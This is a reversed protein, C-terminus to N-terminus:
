IIEFLNLKEFWFLLIAYIITSIFGLSYSLYINKPKDVNNNIFLYMLVGTFVLILLIILFFDRHLLIMFLLEIVFFSAILHIYQNFKTFSIVFAQLVSFFYVLYIIVLWNDFMRIEFIFAYIMTFILVGVAVQERRHFDDNMYIGSTWYVLMPFGVLFINLKAYTLIGFTSINEVFILLILFTLIFPTSFWWIFNLISKQM